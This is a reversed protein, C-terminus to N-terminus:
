KETYWQIRRSGIIGAFQSFGDNSNRRRQHEDSSKNPNITTLQGMLESRIELNISSEAGESATALSGEDIYGYWVLTPVDALAGRNWVTTHIEANALRLDYGRFALESWPAIASLGVSVPQDSLDAVYRIGQISLNCQGHYTRSVLGGDPSEVNIVIDEDGSWFGISGVVGTTIHRPQLHLFWAPAIRGEQANALLNAMALPLIKM